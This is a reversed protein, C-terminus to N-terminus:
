FSSTRIKYWAGWLSTLAIIAAITWIACGYGKVFVMFLVAAAMVAGSVIGYVTSKGAGKYLGLGYCAMGTLVSTIFLNQVIVFIGPNALPRNNTFSWTLVFLPVTVLLIWIVGAIVKAWFIRTRSVATMLFSMSKRDSKVQLVGLCIAGINIGILGIVFGSLFSVDNLPNLNENFHFLLPLMAVAAFAVGMMFMGARDEVERKILTFM